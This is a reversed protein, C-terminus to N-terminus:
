SQPWRRTASIAASSAAFSAVMGTLAVTLLQTVTLSVGYLHGLFVAAILFIM